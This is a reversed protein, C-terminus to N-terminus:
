APTGPLTTPIPDNTPFSVMGRVTLAATGDGTRAGYIIARRNLDFRVPGLAQSSNYLTDPNVQPETEPRVGVRAGTFALPLATFDHFVGFGDPLFNTWTHWDNAPPATTLVDNFDVWVTPGTRRILVKGSAVGSVRSTINRWGSDYLAPHTLNAKLALDSAMGVREWASWSNYFNRMWIDLKTTAYPVYFQTVQTRQTNAAVFLRGATPSAGGPYNLEPTAWATFQQSHEGPTTVDNLNVGEGIVMPAVDRKGALADALGTVQAQTHTHALPTRADTLRSDTGDVMVFWAGWGSSSYKRMYAETVGPSFRTYYQQIQSRSANATVRVSGAAGVPYGLTTSATSSSSQYYDGPTTLTDLHESGLEIPEVPRKGNIDGAIEVALDTLTAM